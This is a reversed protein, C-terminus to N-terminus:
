YTLFHPFLLLIGGFDQYVTGQGRFEGPLCWCCHPLKTLLFFVELASVLFELDWVAGYELHSEDAERPRQLQIFDSIAFSSM